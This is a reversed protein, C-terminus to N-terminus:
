CVATKSSSHDPSCCMEVRSASFPADSSQWRPKQGARQGANYARPALACRHSIRLTGARHCSVSIRQLQWPQPMLPKSSKSRAKPQTTHPTRFNRPPSPDFATRHPSRGRPFLQKEQEQEQWSATRARWFVTFGLSFLWSRIYRRPRAGFANRPRTSWEADLITATVWSM